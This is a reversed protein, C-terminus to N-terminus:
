MTKLYNYEKIKNESYKLHEVKISLDSMFDVMFVQFLQNDTTKQKNFGRM